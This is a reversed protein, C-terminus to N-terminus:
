SRTDPEDRTDTPTRGTGRGADGVGRRRARARIAYRVDALVGAADEVFYRTLRMLRAGLAAIKRRRHHERHASM